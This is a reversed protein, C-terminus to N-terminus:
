ITVKICDIRHSLTEVARIVGFSDEAMDAKRDPLFTEKWCSSIRLLMQNDSIDSYCNDLLKWISTVRGALQEQAQSARLLAM